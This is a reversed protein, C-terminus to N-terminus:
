ILDIRFVYGGSPSNLPPFGPRQYAPNDISWGPHEGAAVGFLVGDAVTVDHIDCSGPVFEVVQVVEGTKVEYKILGPTYGEYGPVGSKQTGTVQWIFGNDWEIGHLRESLSPIRTIPFMYDVQWSKPDIRMLAELRNAYIWLKGNEWAMGHTSGGNDVPGFPIQRQSIQKSHMDTQFIGEIPPTPHGIESEGNAGSWICGDGYAMGSTNKCNTIVTHLVKGNRDLLWATEQKNDHRQEQVWFGRGDPDTTIANPWSPPTLFMKTTKAMRKAPGARTAQVEGPGRGLADTGPTRPAIGTQPASAAGAMVGLGLGIGVRAGATLFGRRGMLNNM